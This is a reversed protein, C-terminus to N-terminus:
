RVFDIEGGQAGMEIGLVGALGAMTAEIRRGAGEGFGVEGMHLVAEDTVVLDVVGETTRLAVRFGELEFGGVVGRIEEIAM